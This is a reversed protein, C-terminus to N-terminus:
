SQRTLHLGESVEILKGRFIGNKGYLNIGNDAKWGFFNLVKHEPM